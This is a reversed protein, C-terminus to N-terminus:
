NKFFLKKYTEDGFVVTSKFLKIFKQFITVEEVGYETQIIFWYANM